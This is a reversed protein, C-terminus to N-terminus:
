AGPAAGAPGATQAITLNHFAYLTYAIGMPNLRGLMELRAQLMAAGAQKGGFFHGMFLTAFEAALDEFVPIETGIAGAAGSDRVVAEILPSLADPTFAATNCGNFFILPRGRLKLNSFDARYLLGPPAQAPDALEVHPAIKPSALGGRAHCFLYILAAEAGKLGNKFATRNSTELRVASRIRYAALAGKLATLHPEARALTANYGIMIGAPDGAAIPSNTAASATQGAKVQMPPLEIQHRFGWFHRPCVVSEPAALPGGAVAQQAQLRAAHLPCDPHDRCKEPLGTGGPRLGAFCSTRDASHGGGPEHEPDYERDYVLAWPLSNELLAHGVHITTAGQDLDREILERTASDFITNYLDFGEFALERLAADVDTETGTFGDASYTFAYDRRAHVDRGSHKELLARIRTGTDAASSGAQVAFGGPTRATYVERGEVDNAFISLGVKARQADPPAALDAAAAYELRAVYTAAPVAEEEAEMLRALAARRQEALPHANGAIAALRYSQLLDAGFYICFRLLLAGGQRPVVTFEVRESSGRRPLWVEQVPDGLVDFDIGSLGVTLWVGDHGEGWRFREEIVAQADLVTVTADKPGITIGLVVPAGVKLAPASAPDIRRGVAGDEYLIPNVFREGPAPEPRPISVGELALESVPRVAARIAALREALPIFGKSEQIHFHFDEWDQRLANLQNVSLRYREEISDADGLSALIARLEAEAPGPANLGTAMTNLLLGPASVRILEERGSGAFLVVDRSNWDPEVTEMVAQDLPRDHILAGYFARFFDAPFPRSPGILIAPGGRAVLAAGLRRLLDVPTATSPELVILRPQWVDSVRSLWGLTGVAHPDASHLLTGADLPMDGPAIHLVDASPWGRPLDIVALVSTDRREFDVTYKFKSDKPSGFAASVHQEVSVPLEGAQLFRLPYTFPVQAARPRVPSVRVIPLAVHPAGVAQRVLLEWPLAALRPEDIQLTVRNLNHNLDDERLVPPRSGYAALETAIGIPALLAAANAPLSQLALLADTAVTLQKTGGSWRLTLAVKRDREAGVGLHFDNRHYTIGPM